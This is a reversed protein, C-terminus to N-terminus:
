REGREPPPEPFETLHPSLEDPGNPARGHAARFLVDAIVMAVRRRAAARSRWAAAIHQASARAGDEDADIAPPATTGAIEANVIGMWRRRFKVREFTRHPRLAWEACAKAGPVLVGNWLRNGDMVPDFRKTAFPPEPGFMHAEVFLGQGWLQARLDDDRQMRALEALLREAATRRVMGQPVPKGDRDDFVVAGRLYVEAVRAGADRSSAGSTSQGAIRAVTLLHEIANLVRQRDGDSHAAAAEIVLLNRVGAFQSFRAWDRIRKWSVMPRGAARRLRERLGPENASPEFSRLLTRLEPLQEVPLPPEIFGRPVDRPVRNAARWLEVAGNLEDPVEPEESWTFEAALGFADTKEFEVRLARDAWAGWAIRLLLPLIAVVIWFVFRQARESLHRLREWFGILQNRGAMRDIIACMGAATL